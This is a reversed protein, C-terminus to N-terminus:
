RLFSKETSVSLISVQVLFEADERTISFNLHDEYISFSECKRALIRQVLSVINPEPNSDSQNIVNVSIQKVIAALEVLSEYSDSFLKHFLM